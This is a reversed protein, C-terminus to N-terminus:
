NQQAPTPKESDGSLVKQFADLTTEYNEPKMGCEFCIKAGNKGYPRLEAVTGCYECPKHEPVEGIIIIRDM